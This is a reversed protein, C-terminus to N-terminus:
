HLSVFSAPHEQKCHLSPSEDALHFKCSHPTQLVLEGGMNPGTIIVCREKRCEVDEGIEMDVSNPVFGDNHSNAGANSLMLSEIIPHRGDEICLVRKKSTPGADEEQALIEPRTYNNSQTVDAFAYLCDLIALQKVVQRFEGYHESFEHLLQSWLKAAEAHLRDTHQTRLKLQQTVTPTHFRAVTKTQSMKAWQDPVKKTNKIPVEILFENQMHTKYQLTQDGLQKRIESLHAQLSAQTKQTGQIHELLCPYRSELVDEGLKTFLEGYDALSFCHLSDSLM